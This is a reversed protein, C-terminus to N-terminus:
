FIKYKYIMYSIPGLFLLWIVQLFFYDINFFYNFYILYFFNITILLLTFFVYKKYQVIISYNQNKNFVFFKHGIFKLSLALIYYIILKLFLLYNILLIYKFLLINLTTNIGGWLFFKSKENLLAKKILFFM